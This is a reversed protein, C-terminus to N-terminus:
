ELGLKALADKAAEQEARKKSTGRGQGRVEGQFTVDIEYTKRHSPGKESAVKYVPMCGLEAQTYQQLRNKYSGALEMKPTDKFKVAYVRLVFRKAAKLGGDLYLAAILAELANSLLSSRQRAADRDEGKGLFLYAGIDLHRAIDALTPESVLMSKLISLKGESFKPFHKYLYETIVLGLVADGLFELTENSTLGLQPRENVYSSHILAQQLYSIRRFKYSIRKQLQKLRKKDEKSLMCYSLKEVGNSFGGNM